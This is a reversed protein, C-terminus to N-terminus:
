NNSRRIIYYQFIADRYDCYGHSQIIDYGCSKFYDADLLVATHGFIIALGDDKVKKILHDFLKYAYEQTVVESNLFRFVILDVTKDWVPSSISDGCYLIDVYPRAYSVMDASLDQGITVISPFTKKLSYLFEGTSCAPDFVVIPKKDFDIYRKLIQATYYRIHEEGFGLYEAKEPSIDWGEPPTSEELGTEYERYLFPYIIENLVNARVEEFIERKESKKFPYYKIWVDRGEQGKSHLIGLLMDPTIMSCNIANIKNEFHLVSRLKRGVLLLGRCYKIIFINQPLNYDKDAFTKLPRKLVAEFDCTEPAFLECGSESEYIATEINVMEDFSLKEKNTYNYEM